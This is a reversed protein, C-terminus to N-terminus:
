QIPRFLFRFVSKEGRFDAIEGRYDLVRIYFNNIFRSSVPYYVIQDNPKILNWAANMQEPFTSLIVNELNRTGFPIQEGEAILNTQIFYIESTDSIKAPHPAYHVGDGYITADWGLLDYLLSTSLDLKFNPQIILKSRGLAESVTFEIGYPDDDQTPADNNAELVSMMFDNLFQNDFKGAPITVDKWTAGNDSSYKFTNNGLASSVNPVSDILSGGVIAVEYDTQFQYGPNLYIELNAPNQTPYNSSRITLPFARTKSSM